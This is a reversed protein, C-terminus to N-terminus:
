FNKKQSPTPVAKYTFSIKKGLLRRMMETSNLLALAILTHALAILIDSVVVFLFPNRSGVFHPSPTNYYEYM